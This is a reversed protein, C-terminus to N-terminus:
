WSLYSGMAASAGHHTCCEVMCTLQLIFNEFVIHTTYPPECLIFLIYAYFHADPTHISIITTKKRQEVTYHDMCNMRQRVHIHITRINPAYYAWYVSLVHVAWRYARCRM